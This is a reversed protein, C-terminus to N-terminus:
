GIVVMVSEGFGELLTLDKLTSERVQQNEYSIHECAAARTDEPWGQKILYNAIYSPNQDHDTLFALKRGKEYVLDEDRPKRGHFSLWKADQWPERLLAFSAQVSSIGPIVEIKNGEFRKKLWPLLSYYGPDGSVMVVVDDQLLSQELWEALLSLKGTIPFIEQGERAYDAM